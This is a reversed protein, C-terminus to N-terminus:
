ISASQNSCLHSTSLVRLIWQLCLYSRIFKRNMINAVVEEWAEQSFNANKGHSVTPKALIVNTGSKM